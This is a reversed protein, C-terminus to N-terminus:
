GPMGEHAFGGTLLSATVTDIREKFLAGQAKLLSRATQSKLKQNDLYAALRQQEHLPPAFFPIQGAKDWNRFDVARQRVNGALVALFGAEGLARLSYALFRADYEPRVRCVHYIPPCKGAARSVGVAGAFADLGHLVLDGPEVGQYDGETASFTFGEERRSSRLNVEGDRFATIVGARKPVPRSVKEVAWKLKTPEWVGIQQLQVASGYLRLLDVCAEAVLARDREELLISLRSRSDLLRDVRGRESALRECINDQVALSPHPVITHLVDEVRIHPTRVNSQTSEGLGRVRVAFDARYPHSALLRAFYETNVDTRSRFVLYHYTVIGDLNAAAILGDYASMQNVVLDGKMCRKYGVLTDARPPEATITDRPFLGAKTLSLLREAGSTSRDDVHRFLSGLPVYPWDGMPGWLGEPAGIPLRRTPPLDAM